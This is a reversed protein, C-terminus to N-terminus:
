QHYQSGPSEGLFDLLIRQHITGLWRVQAAQQSYCCGREIEKDTLFALDQGEQLKLQEIEVTLPASFVHRIVRSDAYDRFPTPNTVYYSIEELLERRLAKLPSEGSELHGGFLGWRGPYPITPLDDRLQLLFRGNQHLIALAVALQNM